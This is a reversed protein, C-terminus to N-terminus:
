FPKDDGIYASNTWDNGSLYQNIESSTNEAFYEDEAFERLVSNLEDFNVAISDLLQELNVETLLYSILDNTDAQELNPRNIGLDVVLQSYNHHIFEEREYRTLSDFAQQIDM